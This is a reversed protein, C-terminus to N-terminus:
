EVGAASDVRGPSLRRRLWRAGAAVDGRNGFDGEYWETSAAINAATARRPVRDFVRVSSGAAQLAEVIHGGLFGGGGLVLSRRSFPQSPMSHKM